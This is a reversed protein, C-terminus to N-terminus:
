PLLYVRILEPPCIACELADVETTGLPGRSHLAWYFTNPNTNNVNLTAWATTGFSKTRSIHTITSGNVSGCAAWERRFTDTIALTELGWQCENPALPQVRQWWHYSKGITAQFYNNGSFTKGYVWSFSTGRLLLLSRTTGEGAEICAIFDRCLQAYNRNPYIGAVPETVVSNGTTMNCVNSTNCGYDAPDETTGPSVSAAVTSQWFGSCSGEAVAYTGNASGCCPLGDPFLNMTIGGIWTESRESLTPPSLSSDGVTIYDVPKCDWCPPPGCCSSGTCKGANNKKPM